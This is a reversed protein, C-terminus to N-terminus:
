VCRDRKKKSLALACQQCCTGIVAKSSYPRLITLRSETMLCSNTTNARSFGAINYLYYNQFNKIIHFHM